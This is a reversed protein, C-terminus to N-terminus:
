KKSEEYRDVLESLSLRNHLANTLIFSEFRGRSGAKRYRIKTGIIEYEKGKSDFSFGEWVETRIDWKM